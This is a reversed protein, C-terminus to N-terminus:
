KDGVCYLYNPTRYYMRTGEFIPTSVNQEQGKGDKSEEILNVALEKYQRGPQIIVTTGQNDMLYINKGALTPSTSAGAWDWYHTRAKMPLVKRYVTEGTAADNVILGGGETMRYLLGEVFLPSANFGRDFPNQKKDIVLENEAWDTKVQFAPTIKGSEPNAPIKWAKLGGNQDNARPYGHFAYMYEGEVIPTPTADGFVGEGWISKGDSVRNFFGYQFAAVWENGVKFRFLSGYSNNGKAPNSWALKGTDVDYARMENAWVVFRNAAMVPSAFNGHEAGGGGKRDIWKRNGDLDYCASVGTTYFVCVHKGDSVATPGAFGFVAQGWYRSFLKKDIAMQFDNVQKELARKKAIPGGLPKYASTLATPQMANLAEVTEANAKELQPILPALKDAYDPSSKRTEEPLGEFESCSRIWLMRGTQKELCVLDMTETTLFIREGVIIPMSVGGSPLPTAWLMGKVAYGSGERKRSWAMPPTAGPYRGTGDGRWGIPLEPSVKYGPTGLVISAAEGAYTTNLFSSVALLALSLQIRTNM